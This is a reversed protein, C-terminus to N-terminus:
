IFFLLFGFAISALGFLIVGNGIPPPQHQTATTGFIITALGFVIFGVGVIKTLIPM